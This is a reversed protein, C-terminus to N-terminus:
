SKVEGRGEQKCAKAIDLLDFAFIKILCSTPFPNELDRKPEHPETTRGGRDEM